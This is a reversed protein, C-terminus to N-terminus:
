CYAEPIIDADDRFVKYQKYGNKYLQSNENISVFM